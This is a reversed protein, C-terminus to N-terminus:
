KALKPLVKTTVKLDWALLDDGLKEQSKAVLTVPEGVKVKGTLTGHLDTGSANFNLSTQRGVGYAFLYYNAKDLVGVTPAEPWTLELAVQPHWTPWKKADLTPRDLLWDTDNKQLLTIEAPTPVFALLHIKLASKGADWVAVAAKVPMEKGDSTLSGMVQAQAPLTSLVLLAAPVMTSFARLTV